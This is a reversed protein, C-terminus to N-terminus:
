LSLYKRTRYRVLNPHTEPTPLGSLKYVGHIEINAVFFVILRFFYLFGFLIFLEKDCSLEM